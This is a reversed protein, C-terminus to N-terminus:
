WNLLVGHLVGHHVLSIMFHTSACHNHAKIPQQLQQATRAHAALAGHATVTAAPACLRSLCLWGLLPACSMWGNSHKHRRVLAFFTGVSKQPPKATTNRHGVLAPWGAVRLAIWHQQASHAPACCSCAACRWCLVRQRVRASTGIAMVRAAADYHGSPATHTLHPTPLSAAFVPARTHFHPPAWHAEEGRARRGGDRQRPRRAQAAAHAQGAQRRSHRGRLLHQRTASHANHM